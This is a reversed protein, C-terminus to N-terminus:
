GVGEETSPPDDRTSPTSPGMGHAACPVVGANAHAGRSPPTEGSQATARRQGLALESSPNPSM